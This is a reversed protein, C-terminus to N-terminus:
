SFRDRDHAADYDIEPGIPVLRRPNVSEHSRYYHDKTQELNLTEAIGATQYVDKTFNWLNPYDRVRRLSCKFHINYVPDFRFLTTFMCIDAATLRPGCLFRQQSLVGEWHDLQEFLATAADEYAEQTSAFGCKYVGNNIPEYIREVVDDVEDRIEKPFLSYEDNALEGFELDFIRLIEISENNVITEERKDWLVPVTVRGTYDADAEQYVEYLYDKGLLQDGTLDAGDTDFTWGKEGMYPHVISIDIADELGKLHRGILARHAWPCAYAVYLHYRGAEPEFKTSGDERVWDRFETPPRQFRGDDSTDPTYQKKTTWSGEVLRGM